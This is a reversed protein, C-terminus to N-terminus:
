TLELRAASAGAIILTDPLVCVAANMQITITFNVSSPRDLEPVKLIEFDCRLSRLRDKDRDVGIKGRAKM